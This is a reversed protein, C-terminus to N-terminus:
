LCLACLGKWLPVLVNLCSQVSGEKMGSARPRRSSPLTSVESDLNQHVPFQSPLRGWHHGWYFCSNSNCNCYIGLFIIPEEPPETTLFRGAMCSVCTLDRPRSSGRSSPMAVWELIRAQLTGHVSSGAPSRDVPDCLTLCSQLSYLAAASNGYSVLVRLSLSPLPRDVTVCLAVQPWEGELTRRASRGSQHGVLLQRRCGRKARQLPPVPRGM